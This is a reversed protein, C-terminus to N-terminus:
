VKLLDPTEYINGIVEYKEDKHLSDGVAVGALEPNVCWMAYSWCCDEDFWEVSGVYNPKDDKKPSNLAFFPYRRVVIIDGEYIEKGNKDLLGTFQMLHVEESREPPVPVFGKKTPPPYLLPDEFRLILVGGESDIAFM